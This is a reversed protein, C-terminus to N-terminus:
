VGLLATKKDLGRIYEEYNSFGDTLGLITVGVCWSLIECYNLLVHQAM